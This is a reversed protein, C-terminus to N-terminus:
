FSYSVNASVLRNRANTRNFADSVGLDLRLDVAFRNMEAIIGGVLSFEKNAETEFLNVHNSSPTSSEYVNFAFAPGGMLGANLGDGEVVIYKILIPIQIYGVNFEEYRDPDIMFEGTAGKTVFLLEPQLHVSGVLHYSSYVGLNISTFNDAGEVMNGYYNAFGVGAKIGFQNSQGLAVSSLMLGIALTLLSIRM